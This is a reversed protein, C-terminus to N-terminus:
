LSSVELIACNSAVIERNSLSSACRGTELSSTEIFGVGAFRSVSASSKTLCSACFSASIACKFCFLAANELFVPDGPISALIRSNSFVRANRSRVINFRLCSLVSDGLLFASIKSSCFVIVRCVVVIAPRLFSISFRVLLLAGVFGIMGSFSCFLIMVFIILVNPNSCSSGDIVANKALVLDNMSLIFLSIVRFLLVAM